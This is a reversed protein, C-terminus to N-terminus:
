GFDAEVRQGSEEFWFQAAYPTIMARASSDATIGKMQASRITIPRSPDAGIFSVKGTTDNYDIRVNDQQQPAQAFAVSQGSLSLVVLLTVVKNFFHFNNKVLVQRKILSIRTKQKPDFKANNKFPTINTGGKVM